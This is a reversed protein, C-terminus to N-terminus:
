AMATEIQCCEIVKKLLDPNNTKIIDICQKCRLFEGYYDGMTDADELSGNYLRIARKTKQKANITATHTQYRNKMYERMYAKKREATTTTNIIESM